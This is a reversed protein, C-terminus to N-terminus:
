SEALVTRGVRRALAMITIMPNVGLGTPFLSGDAVYLGRVVRDDSVSARVRGGPDCPHRAASAGMRVTGLQHASFVTGRNPRFDFTALADTFVTFSDESASSRGGRGFWRPPMGLAVIERAGAARAVRAMSGLAHRLTAQGDTDLRYDIRVGGHKTARVRGEGGDRTVAILPALHRAIGAVAAHADTGEWPLALALLGPHGAAAEIVYPLPAAGPGHFEDIRAAQLPGRWMDIPEDFRAAVVPVPHIRLHRGIAPHDLGSRELIAPTRLAGAALVIQPAAITVSRVAEGDTGGVRAMVAGVRGESGLLLREVAVNPVIRAGAGWADALHARIGSQKTGRRCGFGCSGCDTCDPANRRVRAAAWGLVTAGRLIAQDKPGPAAAETVGLEREIAGVDELAAVGDWGDIGHDRAWEARTVAPSDICTMWNVLTGGGVAGGALLTVSGDWTTTFGHNLYLRDYAELEDVPMATEDVLPGAELVVVSRGARALDRAVVGGGAGSGVVLVDADVTVLGSGDPAPLPWARIPTPSPTVPPADPRYGIAALRPNRGGAGDAYALFTLLNRFAHFASRRLGLPSSAWALLYRERDAPALDRFPTPRRVLALNAFRSEVLRLVLRLQRVQDPDAAAELAGGALNARRLSDGRVFTEAIAALTALESASWGAPASAASLPAAAAPPPADPALTM